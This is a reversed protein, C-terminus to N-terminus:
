VGVVNGLCDLKFVKEEVGYDGIGNKARYKHRVQYKPFGQEKSDNLKVVASWAIGQYSDPDNLNTKLYQEVQSVSADIHRNHVVEILGSDKSAFFQSYLVILFAILLIVACGVNIRPKPNAQNM